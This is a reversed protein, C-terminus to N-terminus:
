KPLHAKLSIIPHIERVDYVNDRSEYEFNRFPVGTLDVKVVYGADTWTKIADAEKRVNDYMTRLRPYRRLGKCDTNPIKADMKNGTGDKRSSLFLHYEGSKYNTKVEYVYCTLAVVEKESGMREMKAHKEDMEVPEFAMTSSYTLQSLTTSRPTESDWDIGSDDTLTKVQWRWNSCGEQARTVGSMLVVAALIM